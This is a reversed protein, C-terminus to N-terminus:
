APEWVCLGVCMPEERHDDRQEWPRQCTCGLKQHSGEDRPAVLWRTKDIRQGVSLLSLKFGSQKIQFSVSYKPSGWYNGAVYQINIGSEGNAVFLWFGATVKKHLTLSKWVRFKVFKSIQDLSGRDRSPPTSSPPRMSGLQGVRGGAWGWGRSLLRFQSAALAPRSRRKKRSIDEEPRWKSSCTTLVFDRTWSSGSNEKFTTEWIGGPEYQNWCCCSWYGTLCCDLSLVLLVDSDINAFERKLRRETELQIGGVHNSGM